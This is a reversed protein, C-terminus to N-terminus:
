LYSIILSIKNNRIDEKTQLDHGESEPDIWENRYNLYQKKECHKCTRIKITTMILSPINNPIAFMRWGNKPNLYVDLYSEAWKHKNFFCLKM